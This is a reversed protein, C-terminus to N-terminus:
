QAGVAGSKEFRQRAEAKIRSIHLPRGEGRDLRELSPLIAQQLERLRANRECLLWVAELLVDGPSQYGGLVFEQDILQEVEPSISLNM